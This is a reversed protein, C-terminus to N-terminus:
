LSRSRLIQIHRINYASNYEKGTWFRSCFMGGLPLMETFAKRFGGCHPKTPSSSERMDATQFWCRLCEPLLLMRCQLNFASGLCLDQRSPIFYLSCSPRTAHSSTSRQHGPTRTREFLFSHPISIAPEIDELCHKSVTHLVQIIRM